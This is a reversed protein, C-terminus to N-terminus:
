QVEIFFMEQNNQLFDLGKVSKILALYFLASIQTTKMGCKALVLSRFIDKAKGSMFWKEMFNDLTIYDLYAYRFPNSFSVDEYM